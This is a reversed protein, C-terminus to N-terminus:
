FYFVKKKFLFKYRWSREFGFYWCLVLMGVFSCVVGRVGLFFKFERDGSEM